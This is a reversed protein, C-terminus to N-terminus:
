TSGAAWVAFAEEGDEVGAKGDIDDTYPVPGNNGRPWPARVYLIAPMGIMTTQV